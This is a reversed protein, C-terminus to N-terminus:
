AARSLILQSKKRFALAAMTVDLSLLLVCSVAKLGIMGYDPDNYADPFLRDGVSSMSSMTVFTRWVLTLVLAADFGTATCWVVVVMQLGQNDQLMLAQRIPECALTLMGALMCVRTVVVAVCIAYLSFLAQLATRMEDCDESPQSCDAADVVHQKWWTMDLALGTVFLVVAVLQVGATAWIMIEAKTPVALDVWRM